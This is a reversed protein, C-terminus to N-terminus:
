TLPARAAVFEDIAEALEKTVEASPRGKVKFSHDGEAIEHLTAFPLAAVTRHLRDPMAFPDRTGQLFLMPTDIHRLHEDRIREPQGPPHLPYGLFALGAASFGEAVIHSGIRGGMSKGGLFPQRFEKTVAEAVARYCAELRPQPDPRQRRGEAYPFNFRLVAFGRDALQEGIDVLLKTNMDHGAGHALVLAARPPGEPRHWAGSVRGGEWAFTTEIV